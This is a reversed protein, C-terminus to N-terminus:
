SDIIFKEKLNQGERTSQVMSHADFFNTYPASLPHWGLHKELGTLVMYLWGKTLFMM